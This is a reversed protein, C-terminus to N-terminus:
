NFELLVESRHQKQSYSNEKGLISLSIQLETPLSNCNTTCLSRIQVHLTDKHNIIPTNCSENQEMYSSQLLTHEAVRVTLLRDEERSMSLEVLLLMRSSNEGPSM